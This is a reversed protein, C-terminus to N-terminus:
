NRSMSPFYKERYYIFPYEVSKSIIIGGIIAVVAYFLYFLFSEPDFISFTLQLFHIHFLYISYSYMGIYSFPVIAKLFKPNEYHILQILLYGFCLPNVSLNVVSIWRHQERSIFNTTLFALALGIYIKRHEDTLVKDLIDKRYNAVYSLLVGFFLADFRIHSACYDRMFNWHEYTIFYSLRFCFGILLLIVYTLAISSLNVKRFRILFYFLISLFLYFHEEVSVSWLHSNNAKFYNAVFIAEHFFAFKSQSVHNLYNYGFQYIILIYYVPYIKFGRRILFRKVDFTEYRQYEKIILGSVLYGSLVFFLDVGIWGGAQIRIFILRAISNGGFTPLHSVMVLAVGIFRLLDLQLNRKM